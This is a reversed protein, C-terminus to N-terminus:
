VVRVTPERPSPMKPIVDAPATLDYSTKLDCVKENVDLDEFAHRVCNEDVLADEVYFVGV